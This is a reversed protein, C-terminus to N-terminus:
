NPLSTEELALRKIYAPEVVRVHSALWTEFKEPRTAREQAAFDEPDYEWARCVGLKELTDMATEFYSRARASNRQAAWESVQVMLGARELLKGVELRVFGSARSSYVFSLEMGLAKAWIQVAGQAPTSVLAKLLVSIERPYENIWPGPKLQWRLPYREGFMDKIEDVAVTVMVRYRRQSTLVSKRRRKTVPHVPYVQTGTPVTIWMDELTKLARVAAQVYELKWGGKRFQKYGMAELLERVDLWVSPPESMGEPWSELAQATVLRWVDAVRPSLAKVTDWLADRKIDANALEVTHLNDPDTFRPSEGESLQWGDPSRVARDVSRMVQPSLIRVVPGHTELSRAVLTEIEAKAASPLDAPIGYYRAGGATEIEVVDSDGSARADGLEVRTGLRDLVETLEKTPSSGATTKAKRAM